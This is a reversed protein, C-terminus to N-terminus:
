EDLWGLERLQQHIAKHIEMSIAIEGEIFADMLEEPISMSYSEFLKRFFIGIGDTDEYVVAVKNDMVLNLGQEEFMEKATKPM